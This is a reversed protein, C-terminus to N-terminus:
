DTELGGSLREIKMAPRAPQTMLSPAFRALLWLVTPVVMTNWSDQLGGLVQWEEIPRGPETLDFLENVCLFAAVCLWPLISALSRRLVVAATLQILLAAYIHLADEHLDTIQSLYDKFQIWDM